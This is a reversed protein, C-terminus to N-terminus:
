IYWKVLVGMLTCQFLRLHISDDNLSNFAFWLHFTTIHDGPDESTNGKFKLIDSPIKTTVLPWSPDHCVHDNMLRYLKPMNLMALFPLPPQLM